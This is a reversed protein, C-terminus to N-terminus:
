HHHNNKSRSSTPHTPTKFSLAEVSAIQNTYESDMFNMVRIKRSYLEELKMNDNNNMQRSQTQILIEGILSAIQHKCYISDQKSLVNFGFSPCSCYNADLLCMYKTGKRGDVVYISRNSPFFIYKSISDNDVLQLSSFVTKNFISYLCILTDDSLPRDAKLLDDVIDILKVDM